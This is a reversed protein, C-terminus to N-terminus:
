FGEHHPLRMAERQVVVFCVREAADLVLAARRAFRAADDCRPGASAAEADFTKLADLASVMRKCAGFYSAATEAMIEGALPNDRDNLPV